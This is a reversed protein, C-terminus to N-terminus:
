FKTLSAKLSFTLWLPYNTTYAAQAPGSLLAAGGRCHNTGTQVYSLSVAIGRTAESILRGWKQGCAFSQRVLGKRTDALQKQFDPLSQPPSIGPGWQSLATLNSTM